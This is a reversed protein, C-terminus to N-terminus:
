KKGGDDDAVPTASPGTTSAPQSPSANTTNSSPLKPNGTNYPASQPTGTSGKAAAGNGPAPGAPPNSAPEAPRASNTTDAGDPAFSNVSASLSQTFSGNQFTSVVTLLHYSVGKILDKVSKPYKVFVISDNINLTGGSGGSAASGDGTYDVAEKFDIEIFVQGGNPNINFGNAGGYFKDYIQSERSESDQILFDPDGMIKIKAEIFSGMDYLNNVYNNQAEMGDGIKGQRNQNTRMQPVQAINFSSKTANGSAGQAPKTAAGAPNSGGTSSDAPIPIAAIAGYYSNNMTQEYSLIESNKGTYWYEYRKHPGYYSQGPNAYPSNIVPTEYQQIRYTIDYAWDSIAGDWRANSIIPSCNYWAINKNTNKVISPVGQGDPGSELATTNVVQLANELYSSQAIVQNIAALIPQDAGFSILRYNDKPISSVEKQVNSQVTSKAGSSAWKSKDLDAPSVITADRITEAGPASWDIDYTTAFEVTGKAHLDKQNKNLQEMLMGLSEGVTNGTVSQPVSIRGKKVGFAKGPALGAAEVQYTTSKGDIKFQISNISIDYFTEFMGSDTANPDLSKGFDTEGTVLRGSADYGFFRLGLIFFQKSANEPGGIQKRYDILDDSANKLKNIFSFGYPEIIKFKVSLINAASGTSKGTINSTLELNDIYYDLDFGPARKSTTNNIGGSQAILFAGGAGETLSNFADIKKRGGAVFVDYADPTIMYLSIQYTYSSFEGLPNSLRKGPKSNVVTVPKNPPPNEKSTANQPTSAGGSSSVNPNTGGPSPTQNPPAGTTGAPNAQKAGSDGDAAGALKAKTNATPAPVKLTEPASPKTAQTAATIAADQEAYVAKHKKATVGIQTQLGETAKSIPSKNAEKKEAETLTNFADTYIQFKAGNETNYANRLAQYERELGALILIADSDAPNVAQMKAILAEAKPVVESALTNCQALLALTEAVTAM